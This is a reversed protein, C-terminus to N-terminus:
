LLSIALGSQGNYGRCVHVKYVPGYRAWLEYAGHQGLTRFEKLNGFLWQSPPGPVKRLRWRHVPHFGDWVAQLVLAALAETAKGWVYITALAHDSWGRGLALGEGCMPLLYPSISVRRTPCPRRLRLRVALYGLVLAARLLLGADLAAWAAMGDAPRRSARARDPAAQGGGGDGREGAFAGLAHPPVRGRFRHGPRGAGARRRRCTRAVYARREAIWGGGGWRCRRPPPSDPPPIRPLGPIGPPTPLAPTGARPGRPQPTLARRAGPHSVGYGQVEAATGTRGGSRLTYGWYQIGLVWCM